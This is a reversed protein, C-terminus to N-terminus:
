VEGVGKTSYMLLASAMVVPRYGLAFLGSQGHNM